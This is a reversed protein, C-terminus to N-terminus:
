MVLSVAIKVSEYAPRGFLLKHVGTLKVHLLLVLSLSLSPSLSLSLDCIEKRPKGVKERPQGAFDNFIFPRTLGCSCPSMVCM